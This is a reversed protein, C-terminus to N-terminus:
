RKQVWDWPSTTFPYTLKSTYKDRNYMVANSISSNSFFPNVHTQNGILSTNALSFHQCNHIPFSPTFISCFFVPPIAYKFQKAKSPASAEWVSNALTNGFSAMVALHERTWTDLTASRVRSIHTGLERHVGSCEICILVVLNLSAWEPDVHIELFPPPSYLLPFWISLVNAIPVILFPDLLYHLTAGAIKPIWVNLIPFLSSIPLWGIVGISWASLSIELLNLSGM